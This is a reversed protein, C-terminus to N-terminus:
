IGYRRISSPRRHALSPAPRPLTRASANPKPKRNGTVSSQWLWRPLCTPPHGPSRGSQTLASDSTILAASFVAASTAIPNELPLGSELSRGVQLSAM